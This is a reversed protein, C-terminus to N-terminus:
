KPRRRRSQRARLRPAHKELYEALVPVDAPSWELSRLGAPTFWGVRVHDVACLTGGALGCVVPFLRIWSGCDRHTVPALSVLPKVDLSLEERIERVVCGFVDEGPRIKGGPFEWRMAQDMGASRQAALVRGGREIIACAVRLPRRRPTSSRRVGTM